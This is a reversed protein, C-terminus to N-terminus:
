HKQKSKGYYDESIFIDKILTPFKQMLRVALTNHTQTGQLLCVGVLSEGMTGRQELKWALSRYNGEKGGKGGGDLLKLASLESVNSKAFM